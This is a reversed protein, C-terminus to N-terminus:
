AGQSYVLWNTTGEPRIAVSGEIQEPRYNQQTAVCATRAVTYISKELALTLNQLADRLFFRHALIRARLLANSGLVLNCPLYDKVTIGEPHVNNV